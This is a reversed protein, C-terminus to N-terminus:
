INNKNYIKFCIDNMNKYLDQKTSKNYLIYDYDNSTLKINESIHDDDKISYISDIYILYGGMSKIFDIENKFRLDTIVIKSKKYKTNKLFQRLHYIWLEGRNIKLNPFLDHIINRGFETGIKQCCERVSIGLKNIKDKENGYLEDYSFNFLNKCVEKVQYALSFKEFYHKEMLYNAVTDKGSNKKGILGIILM